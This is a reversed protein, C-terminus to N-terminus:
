LRYQEKFKARSDMIIICIGGQPIYDTYTFGFREAFSSISIILLHLLYCRTEKYM